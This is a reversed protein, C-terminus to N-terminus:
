HMTPKKIRVGTPKNTKPDRVIEKEATVAKHLNGLHQSHINSAQALNNLAQTHANAAQAHAQAGQAHAHALNNLAGAIDPKPQSAQQGLHGILADLKGHLENDRFASMPDNIGQDAEQEEASGDTGGATIRATVIATKQQIYAKKLELMAETSVKEHQLQMEAQLKAQERQAELDNEQKAQAAQAQQEAQAVQADLQAKQQALQMEQQLKQQGLQADAQVKMMEPNPKPQPNAAQKELKQMTSNFASELEKGVSFARVGFMLMQALLPILEPQQQGAEVAQQLFQGSAKLFEVRSSKEAEEDAKIISDTEIDIRFCRMAQNHILQEVDEWTPDQLMQEMQDPTVGPPLPPPPATTEPGAAALPPAPQQMPPGGNHGMMPNQYAQKEAATLLRVGSIQKITDIQFHNAIVDTMIRIEERIFRQVDRQLDSIRQNAYGSKLTQASATENPDTTGRVIDSMGTIEDLDSKVKDRAEYASLLTEAIQKIDILSYVNDLGGKEQMGAWNDVPILENETGENFMRNLGEASADYIGVVKLCKTMQAIRATLMDLESAQDQYEVYMPTPILSDNALNAFLPKPCPFFGDLRLPDPRLDLADPLSKHFWVAIKRTKDWAEYIVAKSVGDDIVKGSNDQQKYDLPINNIKAEDLNKFREALEKRTLYVKRWVLWVEDWTRCINHGYDARHVYDKVVEEYDIVEPAEAQDEEDDGPGQDDTIEEAPKFHPVYRIWSTARGPLIYDLVCQRSVAAFHDTDCFYTVSRELIDSTVRGVPDADKFRRQIDPKPNRAYLAPLLNQTNSYLINYRREQSEITGDGGRDDKYRKLIRKSQRDWRQTEKDYLEIEQVYRSIKRLSDDDSPASISRESDQEAV